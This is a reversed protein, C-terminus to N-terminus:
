YTSSVTEGGSVTSLSLYVSPEINAAIARTSADGFAHMVLEGAHDSSPGWIQPSLDGTGAYIAKGGSNSGYTFAPSGTRPGLNLGSGTRPSLLGTIFYAGGSWSPASITPDGAMVWSQPGYFWAAMQQSAAPVTTGGYPRPNGEKSEAILITQSTGDGGVLSRGPLTYSPATADTVGSPLPGTPVLPMYGDDTPMQSGSLGRGTMAKYCTVGYNGNNVLIADGSWSPCVLAALQVNAFAKTGSIMIARPDVQSFSGKSTTTPDVSNQKVRDYLASEECYPMIHFLWSYGGQDTKRVRQLGAAVFVRDSAAPLRNKRASAYQHVSLAVQRVKNACSVRNASERASQVAPLLLGILTAIIAIVVLLEVLTFGERGSIVNRAPVDLVHQQDCHRNKPSRARCIAFAIGAIALITYTGPEPVAAVRIGLFDTSTQPLQSSLDATSMSAAFSNWNGGRFGRAATPSDNTGSVATEYWEYVNGGQGVTRLASMGGAATIDAPGDQAFVATGAATGSAVPTPETDSGTPFDWYGASVSGGKFYAAKYWEDVSPLFYSANSNRYPNAANYGSDTVSWLQIDANADYGAGGPQVAFKYAPSGGKSTNLWNVFRAAENWSLDTAPKNNGRASTVLGLTGSTSALTVMRESVEYVGIRYPTTVRGAPNPNGTIDAVNGPVGIDVFDITFQSAGSGFVDGRAASIEVCCQSATLVLGLTITFLRVM